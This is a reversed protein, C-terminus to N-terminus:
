CCALCDSVKSTAVVRRIAAVDSEAMQFDASHRCFLELVVLVVIM